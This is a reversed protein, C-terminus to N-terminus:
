LSNYRRLAMICRTERSLRINGEILLEPYLAM